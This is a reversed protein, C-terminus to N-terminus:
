YSLAGSFLYSNVISSQDSNNFKLLVLEETVGYDNAISKTTKGDGVECFCGCIDDIISDPLLFEAAFLDAQNEYKTLFYYQNLSKLQYTDVDPHLISHGLEHTLTILKEISSLDKNIFIYQIGDYMKYAGRSINTGSIPVVVIGRENLVERISMNNYLIKLRNVINKINNNICM